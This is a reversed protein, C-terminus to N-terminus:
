KGGELQVLLNALSELAARREDFYDYNDYIGEVGKIKHNISREGIHSPIKLSSMLSRTTRRFDHVTFHELGHKVKTLAVNLTSESIHPIMRDQLKRAPLVYDSGCSLRKLEQFWNIVPAALPISIGVGTKTRMAPLDWQAKEFDIEIWKAGILEGKRVGLALLLKISLENELSFGKATKMTFFLKAVEERKLYRDRSKEKGGADQNDFAAAPNSDLIHRKIAYNFMRKLWRLVDNAMTPANRKVIKKLLEDIHRPKVDEVKLHGIEPKIDKEIRSRVINPHKWRGMVRNEFFEDALKAMTYANLEAEFKDISAKKREQKESAVDFGLSVRASLLKAQKRADALSLNVYNGITMVRSKGAFSYRFRWTPIKDEKRFRLYLGDGVLKGEFRTDTKILNRIQIDTLMFVDM